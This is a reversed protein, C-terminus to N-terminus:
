FRVAVVVRILFEEDVANSYTLRTVSIEFGFHFNFHAEKVIGANQVCTRFLNFTTLKQCVDCDLMQKSKPLPFQNSAEYGSDQCLDFVRRFYELISDLTSKLTPTYSFTSQEWQIIELIFM